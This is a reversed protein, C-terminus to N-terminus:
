RHVTYQNAKSLSRILEVEQASLEPIDAATLNQLLQERSSAGPIAVAVAPHSLSYRIALQTLSREPTELEQLKRRLERLEGLEYDLM